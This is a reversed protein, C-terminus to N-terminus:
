GKNERWYAISGVLLVAILVSVPGFGPGFSSSESVESEAYIRTDTLSAYTGHWEATSGSVNQATTNQIEGPMELYYDVNISGSTSSEEDGSSQNLFQSDSYVMTGNSKNITVASNNSPTYGELTISLTVNEGSRNVNTSISEASSNDVQGLLQGAFSEYGESQAQDNLTAYIQPPTELELQYTDLSGDAAVDSNVTVTACGALILAATLAGAVIVQRKSM